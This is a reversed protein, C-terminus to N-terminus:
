LQETSFRRTVLSTDPGDGPSRFASVMPRTGYRMPYLVQRLMDPDSAPRGILAIAMLFDCEPSRPTRKTADKWKNAKWGQLRGERDLIPQVDGSDGMIRIIQTKDIIYSPVHQKNSELWDAGSALGTGPASGYALYNGNKDKPCNGGFREGPEFGHSHAIAAKVSNSPTQPTGTVQCPGNLSDIPSLPLLQFSYTNTVTDRYLVGMRERRKAVDPDDAFTSDWILKLLKRFQPSDLIPDGTPCPIVDVRVSATLQVGNVTAIVEVTGSETVEHSCVDVGPACNDWASGVSVSRRGAGQAGITSIAKSPSASSRMIRRGSNPAGTSPTAVGASQAAPSGISFRASTNGSRNAAASPPDPTFSWGQVVVPGNGVPVFTDMGGPAELVTESATLTLEPTKVAVHIEKQQAEGNVYAAAYMTGSTTFVRTCTEGSFSHCAVSDTGASDPIWRWQLASLDVPYPNPPFYTQSRGATFTASNGKWVTTDPNRTLTLGVHITTFDLHASGSWTWCLAYGAWGCHSWDGTPQGGAQNRFARIPAVIRLVATPGTPYWRDGNSTNLFGMSGWYAPDNTSWAERVINSGQLAGPVQRVQGAVNMTVFTPYVFPGIVPGMPASGYVQEVIGDYTGGSVSNNAGWNPDGLFDHRPAPALAPPPATSRDFCAALTVVGIGLGLTALLAAARRHARRPM